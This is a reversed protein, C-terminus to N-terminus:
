ASSSSRRYGRGAADSGAVALGRLRIDNMIVNPKALVLYTRDGTDADADAGPVHFVRARGSAAISRAARRAATLEARTPARGLHDAVVAQVGIALNQDLGDTLVQQWRGLRPPKAPLRRRDVVHGPVLRATQAEVVKALRVCRPEDVIAHRGVHDSPHHPV